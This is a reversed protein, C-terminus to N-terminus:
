ANWWHYVWVKGLPQYGLSEYFKCAHVNSAQTSIQMKKAGKQFAHYEAAQVLKTGLGQGQNEKSVAILGIKGLDYEVSFTVMGTKDPALLVEKKELAKAIWTKYLNEFEGNKLRTDTKFRSYVGSVYALSVLDGDLDGDYPKIDITGRPDLLKKELTIKTDVLRIRSDLINLPNESFIYVLQFEKAAEIFEDENWEETIITKGVPYNFLSSDFPLRYITM